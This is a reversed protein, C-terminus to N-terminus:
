EIVMDAAVLLSQPVALGLTRATQNNVVLEFKSSLMVPLDSPKAGKLIRGLYVGQQRYADLISAGYSMLGGAEVYQRGVYMAPIGSRGAAVALQVLRSNFFPSGAVLLVDAHERRLSAFAEDIERGSTANLVHYQMGIARAAEEVDQLTSQTVAVNSPDVIVAIRAAGPVLALLLELRKAALEGAFFSVGTLNGEPRAINSVLGQRVPDGGALFVVPITSTAAKAAFAAFEGGTTAIVAVRRRVLDATLEPVRETRDEGWRYEITVNEGEVFGAEKLGQRMARHGMSFAEPTRSDLLGIVPITQQARAALPWAAAGGLLTIFARRKV